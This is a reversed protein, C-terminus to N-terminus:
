AARRKVVTKPKRKKKTNAQIAKLTWPIRQFNVCGIASSVVFTRENLVKLESRIDMLLAVIVQEWTEPKDPLNWTTDKHRAM